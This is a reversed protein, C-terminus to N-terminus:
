KESWVLVGDFCTKDGTHCAVGKQEVKLLVTDADCDIRLEVVKQTNGSEEGKIWLKNRSRSFYTASKTELTKTFAEQNMWAMMLVRGSSASQVVAPILGADNFRLNMLQEQNAIM